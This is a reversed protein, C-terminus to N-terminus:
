LLLVVSITRKAFGLVPLSWFSPGEDDVEKALLFALFFTIVEQFGCLLFEELDM